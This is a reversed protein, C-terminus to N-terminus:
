YRGNLEKKSDEVVDCIISDLRTIHQEMSFNDAVHRRAQQGMKKALDRDLALEVIRNAMAEVDHEAVLYGTNGDVVVDPIGAHQTAVIALGAAGAELIAVPTGEADGDKARVSHQIFAFADEMKERVLHPEAAGMLEVHQELKWAKVLSETVEFLEGDGIFCLKLSSCHKQARRFAELTLYPAKKYTHRGVAILTQSSYDPTIKFFRPDPGYPNLRIKEAPCGLDELAQSMSNSVSIICSAHAFLAKYADAFKELIKYRSADFGHFHAVLPIGLAKCAPAIVAATTGYEALVVDFRNQLMFLRVIEFSSPPAFFKKRLRFEIFRPLINLWRRNRLYKQTYWDSLKQGKCTYDLNYGHIHVISHPLRDLHAKIFTETQGLPAPTVICCRLKARNIKSGETFKM